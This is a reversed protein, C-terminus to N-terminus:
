EVPDRRIVDKARQRTVRWRARMTLKLTPGELENRAEELLDLHELDEGFRSSEGALESCLRRGLEVAGVLEPKLRKTVDRRAPGSLGAAALLRHRLNKSNEEFRELLELINPSVGGRGNMRALHRVDALSQDLQGVMRGPKSLQQAKNLKPEM